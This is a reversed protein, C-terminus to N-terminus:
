LTYIHLLCPMQWLHTGQFRNHAAVVISVSLTFYLLLLLSGFFNLYYTSIHKHMHNACMHMQIAALRVSVGSIKHSIHVAFVTCVDVFFSWSHVFFIAVVLLFVWSCCCVACVVSASFGRRLIWSSQQTYWNYSYCSICVFFWYCVFWRGALCFSLSLTEILFILVTFRIYRNPFRARRM